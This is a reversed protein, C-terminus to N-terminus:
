LSVPSLELFFTVQLFSQTFLCAFLVANCATRKPSPIESIIPHLIYIIYKPTKVINIIADRRSYTTVFTVFISMNKKHLIDFKNYISLYM